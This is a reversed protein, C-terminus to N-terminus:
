TSTVIPGGGDTPYSGITVNTTQPNGSPDVYAVQVTTGPSLLYMSTTLAEYSTVSTSGISTIVDGATLGASSAPSSDEVQEIVAGAPVGSQAAQTAAQVGLYGVDPTSATTFAPASTSGLKINIVQQTGDRLVELPITTGPQNKAIEDIVIPGNGGTTTDPEGSVAILQDGPQLLGAAPGGKVVNIVIPNPQAEGSGVELPYAVYAGLWSQTSSTVVYSSGTTGGSYTQTRWGIVNVYSRVACCEPDVSTLWGVPISLQQNPAEGVLTPSGHEPPDYSEFYPLSATQGDYHVIGVDLNGNAGFNQFDWFVLDTRHSTPTIPFYKLEGVNANTPLVANSQGSSGVGGPSQVKSGDFVSVWRQAYPDWSLVLLDRYTFGSSTQQQSIYTVVRQAPGTPTM